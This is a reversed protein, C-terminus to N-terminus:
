LTESLMMRMPSDLNVLTECSRRLEHLQVRPMRCTEALFM